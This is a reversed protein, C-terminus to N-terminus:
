YKLVFVTHYRNDVIYRRDFRCYPLEQMKEVLPSDPNSDIVTVLYETSKKYRNNNAFTDIWRNVEYRIAPYKMRVTSPPQFYVNPGVKLLMDRVEERSKKTHDMAM